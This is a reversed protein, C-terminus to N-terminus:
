HLKRYIEMSARLTGSPVHEGRGAPEERGTGVDKMGGLSFNSEKLCAPQKCELPEGLKWWSGDLGRRERQQKTEKLQAGPASPQWVPM